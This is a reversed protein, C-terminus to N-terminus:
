EHELVLYTRAPDIELLERAALQHDLWECIRHLAIWLGPAYALNNHWKDTITWGPMPCHEVKKRM